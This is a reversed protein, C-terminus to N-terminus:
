TTSSYNTKIKCSNVRSCRIVYKYVPSYHYFRDLLIYINLTSTSRISQNISGSFKVTEGRINFTDLDNRTTKM